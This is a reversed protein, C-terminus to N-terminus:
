KSDDKQKSRNAEPMELGIYQRRYDWAALKRKLNKTITTMRRHDSERIGCFSQVEPIKSVAVGYAIPHLLFLQQVEERVTAALDYAKHKLATLLNRVIIVGPDRPEADDHTFDYDMMELESAQDIFDENVKSFQERQLLRCVPRWYKTVEEFTDYKNFGDLLGLNGYFADDIQKARVLERALEETLRYRPFISYVLKKIRMRYKYDADAVEPYAKQLINLVKELRPDQNRTVTPRSGPSGGASLTESVFGGPQCQNETPCPNENAVCISVGGKELLPVSVQDVDRNEELPSLNSSHHVINDVPSALFKLAKRALNKLEIVREAIWNLVGPNFKWMAWGFQGTASDRLGPRVTILKAKRLLSIARSVSRRCAIGTEKMIENLFYPRFGDADVLEPRVRFDTGEPNLAFAKHLIYHLVLAVSQPVPRLCMKTFREEGYRLYNIVLNRNWTARNQHAQQISIILELKPDIQQTNKTSM